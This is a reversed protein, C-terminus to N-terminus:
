VPCWRSCNRLGVLLSSVLHVTSPHLASEESRDQRREGPGHFMSRGSPCLLGIVGAVGVATPAAAVVGADDANAHSQRLRTRKFWRRREVPGRRADPGPTAPAAGGSDGRSI